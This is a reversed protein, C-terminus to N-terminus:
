DRHVRRGAGLSGGNLFGMVAERQAELGLGSRGQEETSVRCYAVFRGEAMEAATNVPIRVKASGGGPWLFATLVREDTFHTRLVHSAEQLPGPGATIALAVASSEFTWIQNRPPKTASCPARRM